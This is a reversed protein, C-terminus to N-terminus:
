WDDLCYKAYVKSILKIYDKNIWPDNIKRKCYLYEKLLLDCDKKTKKIIIPQKIYEEIKKIIPQKNINEEM